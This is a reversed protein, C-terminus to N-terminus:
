TGELSEEDSAERHYFGEEDEYPLYEDLRENWTDAEKGEFRLVLKMVRPFLVITHLLNYDWEGKMELDIGFTEINPCAFPLDSLHTSNLFADSPYLYPKSRYELMGVGDSPSYYNM